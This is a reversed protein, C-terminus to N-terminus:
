IPHTGSWSECGLCAIETRPDPIQSLRLRIYRFWNMFKFEVRQM